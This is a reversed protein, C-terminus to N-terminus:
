LQNKMRWKLTNNQSCSHPLFAFLLVGNEPLSQSVDSIDNSVLADHRQGRVHPACFKQSAM